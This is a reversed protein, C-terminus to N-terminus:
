PAEGAPRGGRRWGDDRTGRRTELGTQAGPAPVTGRGYEHDWERGGEGGPEGDNGSGRESEPEADDTGLYAAVVGPDNRVAAPEGAAIVVGFDLVYVRDCIGLVLPMDHDVLVVSAGSAAVDRLMGGLLGRERSDLGAAPEDMLLLTPDAALARAVGVLVRRGHPLEGPLRDALASIGLRALVDGEADRARGHAAVRVNEAVTLDEFLQLTQWTRAMGLRARESPGCGRVDRGAFTLSGGSLSAFGTIADLLTSKGAGNPGIIGVLEGPAIEVDVEHLARVGGYHLSVAEARLLAGSATM